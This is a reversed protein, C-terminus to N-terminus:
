IEWRAIFVAAVQWDDIGDFDRRLQKLSQLRAAIRQGVLAVVGAGQLGIEAM